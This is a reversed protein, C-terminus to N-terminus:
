FNYGVSVGFKDGGAKADQFAYSLSADLNKTINYRLGITYINSTASGLGAEDIVDGTYTNAAEAVFAYNTEIRAYGLSFELSNNIAQRYNLSLGKQEASAIGAVVDAGISGIGSITGTKYTYGLSLDGPGVNFKYALGFGALNGSLFTADKAKVDDYIGSIIISNGLLASGTVNYGKLGDDSSYGVAVRNYNLSSKAVPATQAFAPTVAAALLLTYLYKM